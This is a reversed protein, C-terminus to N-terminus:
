ETATYRNTVGAQGDTIDDQPTCAFGGCLPYPFMLNTGLQNECKDPGDCEATDDLVDWADWTLEVPHFLGLYHGVEHAMTEAFLRTEEDSFQGDPGSALLTSIQVASRETAVLPGPIDGAIGFVSPFGSIEPSLVVNVSRVPTTEDIAVYASETGSAPPELDDVDYTFGEFTVDVGMSAYLDQWVPKAGEVADWLAEDEELGATYVIAVDLDGAELESDDKLFVDVTVLRIAFDDDEDLVGLEVEYRGEELADDEALIPWNLSVTDAVFGANTKSYPSGTYTEYDFLEDDDPDSLRRVHLKYPRDVRATVLLSSEGEEVKIPFKVTGNSSSTFDASLHRLDGVM